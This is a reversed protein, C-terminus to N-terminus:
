KKCFTAQGICTVSGGNKKCRYREGKVRYGPTKGTAVWGPWLGWSIQQVITEMVFWKADKANGATAKAGKTVCAAQAGASAALIIFAAGAMALTISKMASARSSQPSKGDSMVVERETQRLGCSLLPTLALCYLKMFFVLKHGKLRLPRFALKVNNM